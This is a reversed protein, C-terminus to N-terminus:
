KPKAVVVAIALHRQILGVEWLAPDIDICENNM